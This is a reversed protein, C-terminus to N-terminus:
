HTVVLIGTEEAEEQKREEKKKSRWVGVKGFKTPSFSFM